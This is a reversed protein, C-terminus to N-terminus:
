SAQGTRSKGPILRYLRVAFLLVVFAALSIGALILLGPADDM